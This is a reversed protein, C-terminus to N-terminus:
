HLTVGQPASEPEQNTETTETFSRIKAYSAQAIELAMEETFNNIVKTTRKVPDPEEDPDISICIVSVCQSLESDTAYTIQLATAFDYQALEEQLGAEQESTESNFIDMDKSAVLIQGFEQTEFLKAFRNM